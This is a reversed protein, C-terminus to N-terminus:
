QIINEVTDELFIEVEDESESDDEFAIDKFDSEEDELPLKPLTEIMPKTLRISKVIFKLDAIFDSTGQPGFCISDLRLSIHACSKTSNDGKKYIYDHYTENRKRGIFSTHSVLDSGSGSTKFKIYMTLPKKYKGNCKPYSYPPKVLDVPQTKLLNLKLKSQSLDPMNEKTDKNSYFEKMADGVKFMISNIRNITEKEYKTPENITMISTLQYTAQISDINEVTKEQGYKHNFFLGLINRNALQFSLNKKTGNEVVFVKSYSRAGSKVPNEIILSDWYFDTEEIRVFRNTVSESQAMKRKRLSIAIGHM